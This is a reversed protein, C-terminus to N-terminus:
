EGCRAAATRGSHAPALHGRVQLRGVGASQRPGPQRAIACLLLPAHSERPMADDKAEILKNTNAPDYLAAGQAFLTLPGDGARRYVRYERTRPTLRFRVRLPAVPGNAAARAVHQDCGGDSPLNVICGRFPPLPGILCAPYSVWYVQNADPTVVGIEHWANSTFAEVLLPM